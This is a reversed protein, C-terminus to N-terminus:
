NLDLSSELLLLLEHYIRIESPRVFGLVLLLLLTTHGSTNWLRQPRLLTDVRLWM